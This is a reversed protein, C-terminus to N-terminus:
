KNEYDEKLDKKHKTNHGHHMFLHLVPCLLIFGLILLDYTNMNGYFVAYYSIALVSIIMLIKKNYLINKFKM